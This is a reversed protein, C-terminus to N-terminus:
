GRAVRELVTLMKAALTSRDYNRAGVLANERCKAYL